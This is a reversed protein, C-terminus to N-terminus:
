QADFHALSPMLWAKASSRAGCLIRELTMAGVNMSVASVLGIEFVFCELGAHKALDLPAAETGDLIQHTSAKVQSGVRRSKTM